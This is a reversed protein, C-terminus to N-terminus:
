YISHVPFSLTFHVYYSCTSCSSSFDYIDTTPQQNLTMHPIHNISDEELAAGKHDQLWLLVFFVLLDANMQDNGILIAEFISLGRPGPRFHEVKFLLYTRGKILSLQVVVM